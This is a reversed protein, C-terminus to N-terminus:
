EKLYQLKIQLEVILQRIESTQEETKSLLGEITSLEEQVYIIAQIRMTDIAANIRIEWQYALRSLNIEVQRPVGRIFHREFIQRFIFMPILFWILDFHFDFAKTFVIDPHDPETVEIKWDVDPLKVGLVKQISEDLFKRFAELSRTFSAHAKRLTGFFNYHEAKSLNRMEETMNESVWEEYRRSLRWLNGRWAPMDHKLKVTVKKMLPIEFQDLYTQILPRTQRQNERSIMGLEERMQSENVKENLIQANLGARDQDVQLSTNLAINLYSLCSQCLSQTKYRLIRLFEFDRNATLKHLIETEVLQKYQQTQIKTSYLYVPLERNLERQLTQKFFRIVEKQQDLSLLDAKTLLLVINPTHGTLERILELDHESLPRDASVALLATGVEPLWSEATSQHYKYVSGLGPTDVLRLGAYQKLSPLEIDVIAVNKQNGPNKAESTFEAIDAFTVQTKTGDFHRVIIRETEGYQLRTIATTVPIAGVPLVAQGLLSNLFSSKGAKFQGLVAVDIPPNESLLAQAAELQRTLSVMQFRDCADSITELLNRIDSLPINDSINEVFYEKLTLKRYSNDAVFATLALAFEMVWKM